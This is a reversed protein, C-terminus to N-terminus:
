DHLQVINLTLSLRGYSLPAIALPKRTLKLIVPAPVLPELTDVSGRYNKCRTQGWLIKPVDPYNKM